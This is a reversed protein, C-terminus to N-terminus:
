LVATTVKRFPLQYCFRSNGCVRLFKLVQLNGKALDVLLRLSVKLCRYVRRKHLCLCACFCASINITSLLTKCETLCAAVILCLFYNDCPFTPAPVCGVEQKCIIFSALPFVCLYLTHRRTRWDTTSVCYRVEVM